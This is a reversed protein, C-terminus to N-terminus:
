PFPLVATLFFFDRVQIVALESTDTAVAVNMRGSVCRTRRAPSTAKASLKPSCSCAANNLLSACHATHRASISINSRETRYMRTLCEDGLQGWGSCCASGSSRSLCNHSESHSPPTPSLSLAGFQFVTSCVCILTAFFNFFDVGAKRRKSRM